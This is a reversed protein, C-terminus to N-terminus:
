LKRFRFSERKHGRGYKQVRPSITINNEEAIDYNIVRKLSYNMRRKLLSM